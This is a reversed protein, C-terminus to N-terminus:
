GNIDASSNLPATPNRSMSQQQNDSLKSISAYKRAMSKDCDELDMAFLLLLMRGRMRVEMEELKCRGDVRDVSGRLRAVMGSPAEEEVL